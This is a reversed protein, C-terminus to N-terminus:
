GVKIQDLIFVVHDPVERLGAEIHELLPEFLTIFRNLVYYSM